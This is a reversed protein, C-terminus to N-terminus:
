NKLEINQLEVKKMRDAMKGSGRDSEANLIQQSVKTQLENLGDKLENITMILKNKFVMTYFGVKLRMSEEGREVIKFEKKNLSEQVDSFSIGPHTFLEGLYKANQYDATISM